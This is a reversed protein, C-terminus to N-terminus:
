LISNIKSLLFYFFLYFLSTWICTSLPLYFRQAYFYIFVQKGFFLSFSSCYKFSLCFLGEHGGLFFPIWRHDHFNLIFNYVYDTFREGLFFLYFFVIRHNINSRVELRKSYNYLISFHNHPGISGM